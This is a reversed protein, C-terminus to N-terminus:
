FYVKLGSISNVIEECREEAVYSFAASMRLNHTHFNPSHGVHEWSAPVLVGTNPLPSVYKYEQTEPNFCMFEGGWQYNWSTHTFLIFTWSDPDDIDTHITSPQGSTQGNFHVRCLQIRRRLDRQIKLKVISSIDLTSLSIQKPLGWSFKGDGENGENILMWGRQMEDHLAKFRPLDLVNKYTLPFTM